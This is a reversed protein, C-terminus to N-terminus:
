PLRESTTRPSIVNRLMQCRSTPSFGGLGSSELGACAICSTNGPCIYMAAFTASTSWAARGNRRFRPVVTIASRRRHRCDRPLQHSLRAM